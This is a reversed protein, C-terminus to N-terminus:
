ANVTVAVLPVTVAEVVIGSETCYFWRLPDGTRGRPGAVDAADPRQWLLQSLSGLHPISPRVNVPMTLIPSDM